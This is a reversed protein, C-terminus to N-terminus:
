PDPPDCPRRPGDLAFAIVAGLGRSRTQRTRRSILDISLAISLNNSPDTSATIIGAEATGMTVPAMLQPAARRSERDAASRKRSRTRNMCGIQNGRCRGPCCSHHHGEPCREPQRPRDASGTACSEPREQIAEAARRTRGDTHHHVDDAAAVRGCGPRRARSDHALTRAPTRCARAASSM